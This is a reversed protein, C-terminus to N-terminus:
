GSFMRLKKWFSKKRREANIKETQKLLEFNLGLDEAIKM